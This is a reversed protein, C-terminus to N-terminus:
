GVIFMFLNRCNKIIRAIATPWIAHSPGSPGSPVGPGAPGCPGCPGAPGAPVPVVACTKSKSSKM